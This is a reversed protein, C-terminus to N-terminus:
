IYTIISPEIKDYGFNNILEKFIELSAIRLDFYHSLLGSEFIIDQLDIYTECGLIALLKPIIM